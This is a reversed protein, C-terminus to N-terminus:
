RSSHTRYIGSGLRLARRAQPAPASGVTPITPLIYTGVMIHLQVSVRHNKNRGTKDQREVYRCSEVQIRQAGRCGRM